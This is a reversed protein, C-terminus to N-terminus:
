RCEERVAVRKALGTLIKQEFDVSNSPRMGVAQLDIVNQASSRAGQLREISAMLDALGVQVAGKLACRVAADVVVNKIDRGCLDSSEHALKQTNVDDALPLAAPLHREWIKLRCAEDPMVFRVNRIRTSFASDYSEVLNTAFIAVGEFRELNILLQSRMSNIANESGQTANVLRKSLLSEAEDIFLVADDRQAAYFIAQVNKPGDGHYKSEIDAYSGLLIKKGLHAAVAHAALTKGTGSPGYFNLISRPHPEIAKLGWQEFVLPAVRTIEVAALLEKLVTEPLVLSKFSFEPSRSVYRWALTEISADATEDRSSQSRRNHESRQSQEVWQKSGALLKVDKTKTEIVFDEIANYIRSQLVAAAEKNIDDSSLSVLINNLTCSM